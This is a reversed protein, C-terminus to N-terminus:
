CTCGATVWIPVVSVAGLLQERRVVGERLASDAVSLAEDFPLSRACDIVTQVRTTVMGEVTGPPPDQWRVDLGDRRDAGVNRGRPVTVVPRPPARKVKWGWAQAASLHSVVGHLRGAGARADDM